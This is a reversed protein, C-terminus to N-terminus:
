VQKFHQIFPNTTTIEVGPPPLTNPGRPIWYVCNWLFFPKTKFIFFNFIITPKRRSPKRYPLLFKTDLISFKSFIFLVEIFNNKFTICIQFKVYLYPLRHLSRCWTNERWGRVGEMFVGERGKRGWRVCGGTWRVGEERSKM